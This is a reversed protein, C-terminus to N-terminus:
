KIVHRHLSKDIEVYESHAKFFTDKFQAIPQQLAKTEHIPAPTFPRWVESPTYGLKYGIWEILANIQAGLQNFFGGDALIVPACQCAEWYVNKYFEFQDIKDSKLQNWYVELNHALQYAAEGSERSIPTKPSLKKNEEYPLTIDYQYELFEDCLASQLELINKRDPNTEKLIRKNRDDILMEATMNDLTTGLQKALDELAKGPDSVFQSVFGVAQELLSKKEKEQSKQRKLQERKLEAIARAYLPFLSFDKNNEGKKNTAKVTKPNAM